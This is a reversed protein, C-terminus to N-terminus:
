LYGRYVRPQYFGPNFGPGPCKDPRMFFMAEKFEEIHFPATLQDNDENNIVEFEELHPLFVKKEKLGNKLTIILKRQYCNGNTFRVVLNNSSLFHTYKGRSKQEYSSELLYTM